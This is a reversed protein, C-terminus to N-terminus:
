KAPFTDNILLCPPTCQRWAPPRTLHPCLGRLTETDRPCALSVTSSFATSLAGQKSPMTKTRSAWRPTSKGSGSPGCLVIREQRRVRLDVHRLAQFSGFFKDVAEMTVIFDGASLADDM